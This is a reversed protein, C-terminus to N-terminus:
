GASRAGKGRREPAREASKDAADFEKGVERIAQRLFRHAADRHTREHWIMLIHPDAIALPPKLVQLGLMDAFDRAVREPVTAIMDTGAVVSASVLLDPVRVGTKRERRRRRLSREVASEITSAPLSGSGLVVHPIALYDELTLKGRLVPHGKRAICALRLRFLQQAHLSSSVTPPYALVMDCEDAELMERTRRLDAPQMLVRMGPARQELHRILKPLLSFALSSLAVIRVDKAFTGPEFLDRGDVAENLLRLAERAKAAVQLARPTPTMGQGTRVLLPDGFVQRLRALVGSM